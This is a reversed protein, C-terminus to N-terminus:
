DVFRSLFPPTAFTLVHFLPGCAAVTLNTESGSRFKGGQEIMEEACLVQRLL